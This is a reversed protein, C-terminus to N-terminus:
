INPTIDTMIIIILTILVSKQRYTGDPALSFIYTAGWMYYILTSLTTYSLRTWSQSGMSQLGCAERDM